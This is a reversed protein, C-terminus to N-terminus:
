RLEFITWLPQQTCYFQPHSSTTPRLSRISLKKCGRTSARLVSAGADDHIDYSRADGVNEPPIFIFINKETKKRALRGLERAWEGDYGFSFFDDANRTAPNRQSTSWETVGIYFSARVWFFKLTSEVSSENVDEFTEGRPKVLELQRLSFKFDFIFNRTLLHEVFHRM